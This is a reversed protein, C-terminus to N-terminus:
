WEPTSGSRRDVLVGSVKKQVDSARVALRSGFFWGASYVPELLGGRDCNTTSRFMGGHPYRRFLMFCPQQTM